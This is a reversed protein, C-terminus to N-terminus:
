YSNEWNEQKMSQFHRQVPPKSSLKRQKLENLEKSSIQYQKLKIHEQSIYNNIFRVIESTMTESLNVLLGTSITASSLTANQDKSDQVYDSARKKGPTAAFNNILVRRRFGSSPIYRLAHIFHIAKKTSM